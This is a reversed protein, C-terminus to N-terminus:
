VVAASLAKPEEEMNQLMELVVTTSEKEPHGFDKLAPFMNRLLEARIEPSGGGNYLTDILLTALELTYQARKKEVDLRTSVVNLRQEELALKEREIVLPTLEKKQALEELKEQKELGKLELSAQKDQYDLLDLEERRRKESLQVFASVQRAHHRKYLTYCFLFFALTLAYIILFENKAVAPAAVHLDIPIAKLSVGSLSAIPPFQKVETPIYQGVIHKLFSFDKTIPTNGKQGLFIVYFIIVALCFQWTLLTAFSKRRSAALGWTLLLVVLFSLTLLTDSNFVKILFLRLALLYLSYAAAAQVPLFLLVGTFSPARDPLLLAKYANIHEQSEKKSFLRDVLMSLFPSALCSLFSVIVGIGQWFSEGWFNLNFLNM